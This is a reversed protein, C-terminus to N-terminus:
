LSSYMDNFMGGFGCFMYCWSHVRIYIIHMPNHRIVTPEDIKLFTCLTLPRQYPPQVHTPALPINSIETGEAWNPQSGLTARLPFERTARQNSSEARSSLAWTWNRTQSRLIGCATWCLWLFCLFGMVGWLFVTKKYPLSWTVYIKGCYFIFWPGLHLVIFNNSSFMPRFDKHGHTLCLPILYLVLLTTWLLFFLIFQVM